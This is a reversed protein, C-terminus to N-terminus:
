SIKNIRKWTDIAKLASKEPDNRLESDILNYIKNQLIPIDKERMGKTSVPPYATVRLKGPFGHTTYWPQKRKCDFFVMPVIPFQHFVAIKFAGHKFPNLLITEDLYNKEPFICVSYGKDLVKDARGYVGFRSKSSSRDVMIAARKYVYGFLPIKALEKKGVFVFPQKVVRLMVFPDIHSTHNAVFLYQQDRNIKEKWTIELRFGMGHLIFPAWINRAVWFIYKYFNPLFLIFVLIPFLVIIPISALFYFWIRWLILLVRRVRYFYM